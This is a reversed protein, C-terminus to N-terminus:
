CLKTQNKSGQDCCDIELQSLKSSLKLQQIELKDLTQSTSSTTNQIKNISQNTSNNLADLDREIREIRKIQNTIKLTSSKLEEISLQLANSATQYDQYLQSTLYTGTLTLGLLFGLVGNRLKGSSPNTQLTTPKIIQLNPSSPNSTTSSFNQRLLNPLTLTRKPILQFM